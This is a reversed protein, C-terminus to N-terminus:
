LCLMVNASNIIFYFTLLFVIFLLSILLLVIINCIPFSSIHYLQYKILFLLGILLMFRFLSHFSKLMLPDSRCPLIGAFGRKRETGSTTTSFECIGSRAPKRIIPKLRNLVASNKANRFVSVHSVFFWRSHPHHLLHKYCM